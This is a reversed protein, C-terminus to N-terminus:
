DNADGTWKRITLWHKIFSVTEKKGTVERFKNWHMTDVPFEVHTRPWYIKQSTNVNFEGTSGKVIWLYKIGIHRWIKDL